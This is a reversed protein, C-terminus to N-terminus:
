RLPCGILLGTFPAFPMKYRNTRYTTDFTIVEGFIQYGARSRADVWFVTEIRNDDDLKLSYFFNSNETQRRRFYDLTSQADNVDFGDKRISRVTNRVEVNGFNQQSIRGVQTSLVNVIQSPKIGSKTLTAIMDKQAPTM